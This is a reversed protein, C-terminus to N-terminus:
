DDWSAWVAPPGKWGDWENSISVFAAPGGMREAAVAMAEALTAGSIREVKPKFGQAIEYRHLGPTRPQEFSKALYKSLYAAARRSAGLSGPSHKSGSRRIDVIGHGWATALLPQPIFRGVALHVHLGHGGPHWEPVWVYPFPVGDLSRRLRRFFHHLDTRLAREDRQGDGRYTLGALRDLRNSASYRRLKTCARRAAESSSRDPDAAAGLTRCGRSWGGRYRFTGGMEGADPLLGVVWGAPLDRVLKTAIDLSPGGGGAAAPTSAGTSGCRPRFPPQHKPRAM